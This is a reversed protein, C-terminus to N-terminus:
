SYFSAAPFVDTLFWRGLDRRKYDVPDHLTHTRLNRWFRDLGLHAVTARAGTTDFMRTTVELGARTTTVKSAAIAIACAGREEVTLADGRSWARDLAIAAAETVQRAAELEVFLEGYIGLIYPDDVAREVGSAFWAKGRARTVDRAAVLAGEAIGLYVNALTLQAILPRLTAFTSGLPGPESLIESARVLVGDFLVSGSDTQRQGMNDWDDRADIGARDAPIAAVVLKRTADDLASVVLVDADRAGSCFSKEGRLVFDAGDRALVARPDLPNLANGWFWRREVTERALSEFQVPTGFLRVTALLLHQFGYVHALSGDAQAITRVVRLATAWDTGGGGLESPVTLALLGSARLADREAKPTGGKRDREVATKTLEAALASAVALPDADTSHHAAPPFGM